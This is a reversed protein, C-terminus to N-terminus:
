QNTDLLEKILTEFEKGDGITRKGNKLIMPIGGEAYKVIGNKDLFLSTPYSTIDLKDIYEKADIYKDFDFTLRETLKEVKEKNDFTISIFNVKDSYKEKIKNLPPFEEICPPCNTFWFNIMTPKGNLNNLDFNNGNINKLIARPLKKGILHDGFNPNIAKSIGNDSLPIVKIDFNQILSDGKQELKGFNDDIRISRNLKKFARLIENKLDAYEQENHIKNEKSKYYKIKKGSNQSFSYTTISLALILLVVKKM